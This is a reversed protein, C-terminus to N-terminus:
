GVQGRWAKALAAHVRARVAPCLGAVAKLCKSASSNM